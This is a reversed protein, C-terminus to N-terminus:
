YPNENDDTLPIEEEKPIDPEWGYHVYENFTNKLRKTEPEYWLSIFMDQTGNERDKCIEMVNTCGDAIYQSKKKGLYESIAKDFDNNNRHVIFASDVINSINGSGSIDNLRLFGDSKRPHAVFLVHVNCLKAINKLQWVFNTQAEYKDSGGEIDLAMLNDLIILDAKKENAKEQLINALKKFKNGYNNNWLWFHEGMWDVIQLETEDSDIVFSNKFKNSEKVHHRGAAQLAMWKWFNKSSLEGSYCIVNHRDQIVNLMIQSLITSKAAGRLGSLVSVAGKQLGKMCNDLLTIGTRVYENEPEKISKIDKASLLIPNQPDPNELDLVHGKIEENTKTRNHHREWKLRIDYDNQEARNYAEPEYMLRVDKWTKSSCSNHLCKFGIAGNSQVFISSDPKKHMPNFPCEDLVYRTVGDRWNKKQYGIGHASLFTEIDFHEYRGNWSNQTTTPTQKEPLTDALKQLIEKPTPKIEEPVEFIKSMRYPHDESNSGKQALTGYLKCIRSPNHNVVDIKVKDDTFSNSLAELCHKVLTINEENCHLKIRYLLHAGNGSVAKVPKEFGMHELYAVIRKATAFAMHMQENTASTDSIREPDLDIFLWNYGVIDNDSTSAKPRQLFKDRQTRAYCDKNVAQLTTYVNTNRLDVKDFAKILTEADSFYGSLTKNGIIRVEFLEGPAYLTAITKKIEGIDFLNENM